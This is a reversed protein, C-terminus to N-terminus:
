FLIFIGVGGVFTQGARHISLDLGLSGKFTRGFSLNLDGNSLVATRIYNRKYRERTVVKTVPVVSTTLSTLKNFQVTADYKVLGITDIDIITGSYFRKVNWDKVTEALNDHSIIADRPMSDIFITDTLRTIVHIFSDRLVERIPQPDHVTLTITDHRVYTTVDPSTRWCRGGVYLGVVFCFVIIIFFIFERM